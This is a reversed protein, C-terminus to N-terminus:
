YNYYLMAAADMVAAADHNHQDASELLMAEIGRFEDEVTPVNTNYTDDNDDDARSPPPEQTGGGGVEDDETMSSSNSTTEVLSESTTGDDGSSDDSSGNDDGQSMVADRHTTTDQRLSRSIAALANAERHKEYQTTM